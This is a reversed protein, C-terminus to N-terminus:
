PAFNTPRIRMSMVRSWIAWCHHCTIKQGRLPQTVVPRQGSLHDNGDMGCITAYDNIVGPIHWDIVGDADIGVLDRSKVIAGIFTGPNRVPSRGAM